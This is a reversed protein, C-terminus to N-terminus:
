NGEGFFGGGVDFGDVKVMFGVEQFRDQQFMAKPVLALAKAAYKYTLYPPSTRAPRVPKYDFHADTYKDRCTFPVM